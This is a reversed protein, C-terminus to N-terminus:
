RRGGESVASLIGDITHAPDGTLADLQAMLALGMVAAVLTQPDRLGKGGPPLSEAFVEIWGRTFARLRERIGPEAQGAVFLSNWVRFFRSAPRCYAGFLALDARLRQGAPVRSRFEQLDREFRGLAYEAVAELLHVRTAYYYHVAAHNIGVELGVSRAHLGELGKAGLIEYSAELIQARRAESM